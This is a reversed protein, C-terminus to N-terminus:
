SRVTVDFADAAPGRTANEPAYSVRFDNIISPKFVHTWHGLYNQSKITSGDSYILLNNPDFVANRKFHDYFFRFTLQNKLSFSHDVRGTFEYFDQQDPRAFILSNLNPNSTPAGLPIGKLLSIVSIDTASARAAASPVTAANATLVNRQITQQYAGFFFTKDKIIPGGFTGGFQNRKLM